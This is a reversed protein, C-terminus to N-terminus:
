RWIRLLPGARGYVPDTEPLPVRAINPLAIARDAPTARRLDWDCGDPYAGVVVLGADDSLRCHGAGAPIVVVDGAAVRLKPGAPGGFQVVASGAALGLVEHSTSHYHHFPYIGNVWGGTWGCGAFRQLIADPDRALGPAADSAFAARYVLLPLASNPVIADDALVVAEPEVMMAPTQEHSQM